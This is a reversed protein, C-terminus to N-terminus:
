WFSPWMVASMLHFSLPLMTAPTAASLKMANYIFFSPVDNNVTAKIRCTTICCLMDAHGPVFILCSYSDVASIEALRVVNCISGAVALMSLLHVTSCKVGTSNLQM